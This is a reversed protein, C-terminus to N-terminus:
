DIGGGSLAPRTKPGAWAYTVLGAAALTFAVATTASSDATALVTWWRPPAGTRRALHPLLVALPVALAPGLGFACLALTTLGALLLVDIRLQASGVLAQVPALCGGVAALGILWWAARTIVLPRAALAISAEVRDHLAVPLLTVALVPLILTVSLSAYTEGLPNTLRDQVVGREVAWTLVAVGVLGIGAAATSHTALWARRVASV